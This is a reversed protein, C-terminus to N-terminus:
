YSEYKIKHKKLLKLQTSNIRYRTMDLAKFTKSQTLLVDLAKAEDSFSVVHIQKM